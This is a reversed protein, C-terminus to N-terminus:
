KLYNNDKTINELVRNREKYMEIQSTLTMNQQQVKQAFRQQKATEDYANKALTELACLDYVHIDKEVSGSNVNGKVSDFQINSNIQDDDIISNIIKTHTPYMQEDNKNISLSQVESIFASEYSPEDDSNQDAPQIRAMLCINASLEEIEEMRSADAFLFDNQEDTLIVGAEDQKALLMQEMFYKSDRVRPKPCNRAYHGKGGCNYCQGTSTNGPTPTRVIRQVNATENTANMGEVVEEQVYARRNNRGVNGSNRSQINVRDGQVVAQNRTNSSARLRNNTPNSFNQTIAKALLLMASALPDESHNHVDDQEYEEDYDVVSSPHTVYYSSTNRSSSGTHAVLALPDHSKELKKARSANVLKEFQSLYDFLDDFSDVTLQKALRVQTVYKLWEPQLSNLFKTNVSVTPFKMNNRELDNMLQAFRNYVSVLSEGPEAVFQDFENTFRTERDVQNQITGRMLREVRAWMEKATKCSDVSNYIENPISLLIMNMLEMEADYYLLDDGQLDEVEQLRPITSGTPTINRFVYPGDELAKLLWKRNERKRNLFRKFRSAWPIYSGRELMPPRTESGADALSQQYTKSTSM